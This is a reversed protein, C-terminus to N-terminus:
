LEKGEIKHFVDEIADKMGSVEHGKGSPPTNGFLPVVRTNGRGVELVTGGVYQEEEILKMMADVVEEPLVWEDKETDLMRMKEPHELWIPTKVVGPSVVNVRIGYKPDLLDLSRGFAAIAHKTACYMPVPLLAMQGAISSILVINGRKQSSIFHAIALQTLRMPHTLNIEVIKYQSSEILDASGATGPPIWFNSFPPEFVGAGPCVIDVGGFERKCVEVLEHLQTWVTVDCKQFVLRPIGAQHQDALTQAEPRLLIDGIVVNCGKSLLV